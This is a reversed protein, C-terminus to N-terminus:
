VTEINWMCIIRLVKNQFVILRRLNSKYTSGWIHNCYNCPYVFLYYFCMLGDRSLYNRAKIIMAVGRSVNGAIYSIHDKWNLKNNTTIGLFTTNQVESISEGDIMLKLNTKQNKAKFFVKHHTKKVNLSLKNTKLWKSIKSLELNINKLQMCIVIMAFPIQTMQLYYQLLLIAFNVCTM